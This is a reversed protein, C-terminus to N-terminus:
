LRPCVMLLDDGVVVVRQHLNPMAFHPVVDHGTEGADVM